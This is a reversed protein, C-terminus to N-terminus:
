GDVLVEGAMVAAVEGAVIIQAQCEGLFSDWELAEALIQAKMGPRIPRLFHAGFIKTARVTLPKESALGEDRLLLQFLAVGAQGMMEIMLVGPLIPDGPFHGELGIHAANIERSAVLRRTERSWGEIEDILLMPGRHPLLEKVTAEPRQFEDAMSLDVADGFLPARRIAKLRREWNM